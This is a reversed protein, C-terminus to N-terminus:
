FCFSSVSSGSSEAHDEKGVVEFDCNNISRVMKKTKKDEYEEGVKGKIKISTGKTVKDEEGDLKIWCNQEGTSDKVGIFQSWGYQGENPKQAHSVKGELGITDGESARPMEEVKMKM